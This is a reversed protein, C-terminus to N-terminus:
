LSWAEAFEEKTMNKYPSVFGAAIPEAPSADGDGAFIETLARTLGAIKSDGIDFEALYERLVSDIRESCHTMSM